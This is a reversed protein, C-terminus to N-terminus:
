LLNEKIYVADGWTWMASPWHTEVRKFGYGFLLADMEEIEMNGSYTQGRNVETYIVDIYKLTETAGKLVEGEYGQVDMALLNYDQKNFPLSDLPVVKVKETDTFVVEPHQRLHLQPKLLSNSQGQNNHSVNMSMESEEAGCANRFFLCNNYKLSSAEKIYNGSVDFDHFKNFGTLNQVMKEYAGKCAEIYVFKEIGCKLYDDHEEAWHAGVHVVGKLNLSYKKIIDKLPILM